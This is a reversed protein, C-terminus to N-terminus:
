KFGNETTNIKNKLQNVLVVTPIFEEPYQYKSNRIMNEIRTILKWNSPDTNKIDESKCKLCYGDPVKGHLLEWEVRHKLQYEGKVVRIEIYGDKTIREHGDYNANHPVHGKKFHSSNFRKALRSRINFLEIKSRKIGNDIMYDKVARPGRNIVEGLEINSLTKYNQMLYNIEEKSWRKAM